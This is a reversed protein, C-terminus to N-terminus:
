ASIIILGTTEIGGASVGLFITYFSQGAIIGEHHRKETHGYVRSACFFCEIEGNRVIDLVACHRRVTCGHCIIIRNIEGDGRFRAVRQPAQGIGRRAATGHRNGLNYVAPISEAHGGGVCRYRRNELLQVRDSDRLADFVSGNLGDGFGALAVGDGEGDGRRRVVHQGLPDHGVRVAVGHGHVLVVLEGHGRAVDGDRRCEVRNVVIDGDRREGAAAHGGAHAARGCGCGVVAVGDGEGYVRRRAIHQM